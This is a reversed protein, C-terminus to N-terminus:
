QTETPETLQLDTRTTHRIISVTYQTGNHHLVHASMMSVSMSMSVYWRSDRTDNNHCRDTNRGGHILKRTHSYCRINAVWLPSKIRRVIHEVVPIDNKIVVGKSQQKVM